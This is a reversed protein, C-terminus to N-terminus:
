EDEVKIGEEVMTWVPNRSRLFNVSDALYGITQSIQEATTNVGLSIRVSNKAQRATRGMAVLVHSPNLSASSCASGTSISIKDELYLVLEEANVWDFCINSTNPLRLIKGGNVTLGTLRSKLQKELEDRLLAARAYNDPNNTAIEAAKGLGAIAPVNLTGSRLNDQHGGGHIQPIIKIKPDKLSFYLGGIGKPGYFKHASFSLIHIGTEKPHVKIKGVAQTADSFLVVQKENCIEAIEGMPQIVGTENNAWMVAVLVTDPRISRKLQDPDILGNEDVDLFTIDAGKKAELYYCVDLVSRHETKVTVIHNGKTAYAEFVGKIALNNAETAGSTFILEQGEVALLAAVLERAKDVTSGAIKGQKHSKSAANGPHLSFYPIVAETVEPFCPTTANFDLYIPESMCYLLRDLWRQLFDEQKENM